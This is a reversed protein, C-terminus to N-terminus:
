AFELIVQDVLVSDGPQCGDLMAQGMKGAGALLLSGSFKALTKSQAAPKKM